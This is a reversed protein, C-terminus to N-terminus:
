ETTGRVKGRTNANSKVMKQLKHNEEMLDDVKFQLEEVKTNLKTIENKLDEIITQYIQVSKELNDLIISDTEKRQRKQGLFFTVIGTISSVFITFPINEM